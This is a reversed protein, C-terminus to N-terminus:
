SSSSLSPIFASPYSRLEDLGNGRKLMTDLSAQPSDDM